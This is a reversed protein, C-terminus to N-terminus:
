LKYLEFTLLSHYEGTPEGALLEVELPLDFGEAGRGLRVTQEMLSLKRGDLFLREPPLEVPGELPTARVTLQWGTNAVVEVHLVGPEVRGDKVTVPVNGGTSGNIRLMLIEPISVVFRTTASNGAGWATAVMLVALLWFLKKQM